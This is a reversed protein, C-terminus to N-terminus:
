PLNLRAMQLAERASNVCEQRKAATAALDTLSNRLKGTHASFRNSLEQLVLVDLKGRKELPKTAAVPLMSRLSTDLELKSILPLLEEFCRQADGEGTWKGSILASLSGNAAAEHQLLELRTGAYLAEAQRHADQAATLADSLAATDESSPQQKSAGGTSRRSPLSNGSTAPPEHANNPRSPSQQEAKFHPHLPIHTTERSSPESAASSAAAAERKILQSWNVYGGELRHISSLSFGFVDVLVAGVLGCNDMRRAHQSMIVLRRGDRRLHAVQPLAREPEMLLQMYTLPEASQMHSGALEHTERVDVPICLGARLWSSFVKAPVLPIEDPMTKSSKDKSNQWKEVAAQVRAKNANPPVAPWKGKKQESSQAASKAKLPPEPPAPQGTDAARRKNGNRGRAKAGSAVGAAREPPPPAASAATKKGKAPEGAAKSAAKAPTGSKAKTPKVRAKEPPKAKPKPRKLPRVRIKRIGEEYAEQVSKFTDADGGKDPHHLLALRRFAAKIDEVPAFVSINLVRSWRGCAAAIRQKSADRTEPEAAM